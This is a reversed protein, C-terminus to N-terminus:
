ILSPLRRTAITLLLQSSQTTSHSTSGTGDGPYIAYFRYQRQLLRPSYAQGLSRAGALHGRSDQTAVRGVATLADSVRLCGGVTSFAPVCLQPVGSCARDPRAECTGESAYITFSYPTRACDIQSESARRSCRSSAADCVGAVVSTRKSFPGSEYSSLWVRVEVGERAV